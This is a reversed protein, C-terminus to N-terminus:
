SNLGKKLSKMIDSVTTDSVSRVMNMKLELLMLEIMCILRIYDDASYATFSDQNNDINVTIYYGDIENGVMLEKLSDIDELLKTKLSM